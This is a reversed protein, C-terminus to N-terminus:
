NVCQTCAPEFTADGTKAETATFSSGYSNFSNSTTHGHKVLSSELYQRSPSTSGVASGCTGDDIANCGPASSRLM